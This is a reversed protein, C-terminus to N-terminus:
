CLVYKLVVSIGHKLVKRSIWGLLIFCGQNGIYSINVVKKFKERIVDISSSIHRLLVTFVFISM